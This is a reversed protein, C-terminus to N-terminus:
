SSILSQIDRETMDQASFGVVEGDRNILVHTNTYRVGFLNSVAGTRDYAIPYLIGRSNVFKEVAADSERLNIGIVEVDDSYMDYLKSLKPMSRQCNHCWSAWFEVIIPKEGRFDALRVEGGGRLPLRFNPALQPKATPVAATGASRSAIASQNSTSFLLDSHGGGSTFRMAGLVFGMLLLMAGIFKIGKM